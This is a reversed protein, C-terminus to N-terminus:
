AAGRRDARQRQIEELQKRLGYDITRVDNSYLWMIDIQPFERQLRLACPLSIIRDKDDGNKTALGKRWMSLQSPLCGISDAVDNASINKDQKLKFLFADLRSAIAVIDLVDDHMGNNLIVKQSNHIARNHVSSVNVRPSTDPPMSRDALSITSANPPVPATAASTPTLAGTTELQFDRPM